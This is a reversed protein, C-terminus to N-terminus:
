AVYQLTCYNEYTDFMLQMYKMGFSNNINFFIVIRIKNSYKREDKMAQLM